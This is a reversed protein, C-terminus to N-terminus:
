YGISSQRKSGIGSSIIRYKQNISKNKKCDSYNITRNFIKDKLINKLNISFQRYNVFNINPNSMSNNKCINNKYYRSNMYDEEIKINDYTSRSRKLIKYFLNNEKIINKFRKIQIKDKREFAPCKSPINLLHNYKSKSNVVYILKKYMVNNDNKIRFKKENEIGKNILGKKIFSPIKPCKNNIISKSLYIRELHGKHKLYQNFKNMPNNAKENLM